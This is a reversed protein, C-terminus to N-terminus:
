LDTSNALSYLLVLGVAFTVALLGDVRDFVGGHGPILKGSDKVGARRKMWSELFDGSQAVVALAAGVALAAPVGLNVVGFNTSAATVMAALIM